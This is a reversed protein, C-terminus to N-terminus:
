VYVISSSSLMSAPLCAKATKLSPIIKLSYYLLQHIWSEYSIFFERQSRSLEEYGVFASNMSQKKIWKFYNRIYFCLQFMSVQMSTLNMKSVTRKPKDLEAFIRWIASTARQTTKKSNKSNEMKSHKEINRRIGATTRVRSVLSTDAM